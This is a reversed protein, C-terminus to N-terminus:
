ASNPNTLYYSSFIISARKAALKSFFEIYKTCGSFNANWPNGLAQNLYKYRLPFKCIPHGNDPNATEGFRRISEELELKPNTKGEKHLFFEKGDAESEVGGWMNPKYHLLKIWKPSKHLGDPPSAFLNLSFLFILLYQM